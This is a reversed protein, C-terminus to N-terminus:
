NKPPASVAAARTAIDPPTDLTAAILKQLAEGSMSEFEMKRSTLEKAFTPDAMMAAFSARLAALIAPPLKPPAVFSRGIEAGSALLALVQRDEPTRGLEVMTPADPFAPNRAGAYQVLVRAKKDTIWDAKENTLSGVTAYGGDIEGRELALMVGKMGPYGPVIKFRTDVMRNLVLPNLGSAAQMGTAGVLLERTKVDEITKISSTHWAVTVDVSSALRGLWGYARADYDVHPDHFAQAIAANQGIMGFATGDHPAQNYLWSAAKFGGASPMNKAVVVPSGPLFKGLRSAVLKGYFDYSGGPEYGIILSLQKGRFDPKGDDARAPVCIMTLAVTAAILMAQGDREGQHMDTRGQISPKIGGKNARLM